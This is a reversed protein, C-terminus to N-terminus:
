FLKACMNQIHQLELKLENTWQSSFYKGVCATNVVCIETQMPQGVCDLGGYQPRPNSCTRRRSRTGNGCTVSCKTWATWM